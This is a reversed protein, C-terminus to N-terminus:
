NESANAADIRDRQEQPLLEWIWNEFVGNGRANEALNCPELDRADWDDSSRMAAEILLRLQVPAWQTLDEPWDDLDASFFPIFGSCPTFAKKVLDRLIDEDCAARLKQPDPLDGLIVDSTFNYERPSEVRLVTLGQLVPFRDVLEGVYWEAYRAYVAPWPVHQWMDALEPHEDGSEDQCISSLASMLNDDHGSEYFGSFPVVCQM